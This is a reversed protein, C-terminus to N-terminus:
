RRGPVPHSRGDPAVASCNTGYGCVVGVGWRRDTGARLVAFTDNRVMDQATIGRRKLWRGIKRDDQPLDAGALCYVGLDAMPLRDPDMGADACATEAARVIQHM